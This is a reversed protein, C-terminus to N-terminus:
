LLRNWLYLCICQFLSFHYNQWLEGLIWHGYVSASLWFKPSCIHTFHTSYLFFCCMHHKFHKQYFLVPFGYTLINRWSPLIFKHRTNPPVCILHYCQCESVLLHNTLFQSSHSCYAGSKYHCPLHSASSGQNWGWTLTMIATGLAIIGTQLGTELQIELSCYGEVESLSASYCIFDIKSSGM